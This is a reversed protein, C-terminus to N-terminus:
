ADEGIIQILEENTLSQQKHTLKKTSHFSAKREQKEMEDWNSRKRSLARRKEEGREIAAKKKSKAYLKKRQKM